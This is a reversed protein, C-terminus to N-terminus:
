SKEQKMVQLVMEENHGPYKPVCFVVGYQKRM